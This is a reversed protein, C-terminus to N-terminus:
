SLSDFVVHVFSYECYVTSRLEELINYKEVVSKAKREVVDESDLGREAKYLDKTRKSPEVHAGSASGVTWILIVLTSAIPVLILKTMSTTAELFVACLVVLFALFWLAMGSDAPSISQWQQPQIHDLFLQTPKQIVSVGAKNTGM